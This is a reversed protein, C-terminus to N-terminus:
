LNKSKLFNDLKAEFRDTDELIQDVENMFNNVDDKKALIKNEEQWFEITTELLNQMNKKNKKIISKGTQTIEHAFVDGFFHSLDDEIDWEINVLVSGFDKALDIDGNIKIGKREKSLIMKLFSKSDMQIIADKKKPCDIIKLNGKSDVLFFIDFSGIILNITKSKHTILKSQMWDNQDLIHNIIQNRLKSIM